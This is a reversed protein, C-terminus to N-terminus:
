NIPTAIENSLLTILYSASFLTFHLSQVQAISICCMNLTFAVTIGTIIPASPIMESNNLFYKLLIGLFCSILSSCTVVMNPVACKSRFTSIYSYLVNFMPFLMVHLM